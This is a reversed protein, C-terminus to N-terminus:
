SREFGRRARRYARGVSRVARLMARFESAGPRRMLENLDVHWRELWYARDQWKAVAANARSQVEVLEDELAAIRDRLLENEALLDPETSTQHKAIPSM